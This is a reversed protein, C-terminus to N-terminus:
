LSGLGAPLAQIVGQLFAGLVSFILYLVAAYLSVLLGGTIVSSFIWQKARLRYLVATQVGLALIPAAIIAVWANPIAVIGLWFSAVCIIIGAIFALLCKGIQVMVTKLM